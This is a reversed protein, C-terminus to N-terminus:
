YPARQVIKAIDSFEFDPPRKGTIGSIDIGIVKGQGNRILKFSSCNVEVEMGSKLVFTIWM